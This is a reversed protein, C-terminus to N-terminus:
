WVTQCSANGLMSVITNRDAFALVDDYPDVGTTVTQANVFQANGDANCTAYGGSNSCAIPSSFPLRAGNTGLGNTVAEAVFSGFGHSGHSVFIVGAQQTTGGPTLVSINNTKPLLGAGTGSPACLGQQSISIPLPTCAGNV